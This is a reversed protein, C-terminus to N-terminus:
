RMDDRSSTSIVSGGVVTVDGKADIPSSIFTVGVGGASDGEGGFDRHLLRRKLFLRRLLLGSVTLITLGAGSFLWEKNDSLYGALGEM